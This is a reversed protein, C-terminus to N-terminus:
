VVLVVFGFGGLLYCGKGAVWGGVGWFVLIGVARFRGRGLHTKNQLGYKGTVTELGM